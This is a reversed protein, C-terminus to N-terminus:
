CGGGWASWGEGHAMRVAILVSSRANWVSRQIEQDAIFETRTNMQSAWTSDLFQYVGSASSFPNDAAWYFGSERKAICKAIEVGGPVEWRRTACEITRQVEYTSFAVDGDLYRFRCSPTAHPGVYKENIGAHATGNLTLAFSIALVLTLLRKM